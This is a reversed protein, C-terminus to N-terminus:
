FYNKIRQIISNNNNDNGSLQNNRLSSFQNELQNLQNRHDDELKQKYLYTWTLQLSQKNIM